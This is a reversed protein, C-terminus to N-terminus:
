SKVDSLPVMAPTATASTSSMTMYKMQQVQSMYQQQQQTFLPKEFVSMLERSEKLLYFSQFFVNKIKLFIEGDYASRATNTLDFPEEICLTQWHNPDNKLSRASKCEEIPLVGGTRISIAHNAYSFSYIM